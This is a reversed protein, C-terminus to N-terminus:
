QPERREMFARHGEVADSDVRVVQGDHEFALKLSSM